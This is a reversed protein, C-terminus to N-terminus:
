YQIEEVRSNLVKRVFIALACSIVTLILGLASAQYLYTNSFPDHAQQVRMYLWNSVTQTGNLGGTLLFVNGTAGFIGAISTTITLVFTPWVLPLIIQTLERIWNVGDIRASEIVSDPIRSFTGGWIILNGPFSLWVLNLIVMQNAFDPNELPNQVVGKTGTIKYLLEPFFSSTPSMLEQFFFSVVVSSIITPLYFIVRYAKYGWIKKYIFYSVLLGVPYMITQVLFTKFTNGFALKLDWEPFSSGEKLLKFIYEFNDWTPVLATGAENPKQFAMVFSDLNVYVYFLLFHVVPIITFSVIFLARVIKQKRKGDSIKSIREM